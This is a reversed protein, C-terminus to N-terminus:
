LESVSSAEGLQKRKVSKSTVKKSEQRSHRPKPGKNESRRKNKSTKGSKKTPNTHGKSTPKTAVKKPLSPSPAASPRSNVEEVVQMLLQYRPNTDNIAQFYAQRWAIHQKAQGALVHRTKEPILSIAGEVYEYMLVVWPKGDSVFHIV